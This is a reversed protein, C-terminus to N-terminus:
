IGTPVLVSDIDFVPLIPHEVAEVTPPHLPNCPFGCCFYSLLIHDAEVINSDFLSFHILDSVISASM